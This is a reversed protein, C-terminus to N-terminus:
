GKKAQLQTSSGPATSVDRLCHGVDDVNLLNLLRILFVACPCLCHCCVSVFNTPLELFDVTSLCLGIKTFNLVVFRGSGFGSVCRQGLGELFGPDEVDFVEILSGVPKEEKSEM